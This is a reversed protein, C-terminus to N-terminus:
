KNMNAMTNMAHTLVEGHEKEPSFMICKVDEEVRATHGAPLYFVEGKELVDVAGDDYLIKFVGQIIYGWHPCHCSDNSLGKLLPSFDTGKPLESYTVDMEGFNVQRRMITGPGEMISPIDALKMKM